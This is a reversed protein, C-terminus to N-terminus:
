ALFWPLPYTLPVSLIFICSPYFSSFSNKTMRLIVSLISFLSNPSASLHGILSLLYKKCYQSQILYLSPILHLLYKFSSSCLIQPHLFHPLPSLRLFKPNRAQTQPPRVFLQSFFLLSFCLFFPFIGMQICLELSYCPSILFGEEIILAFFYLFAVSHLLRSIEELFDSIGPSCKM